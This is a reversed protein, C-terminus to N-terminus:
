RPWLHDFLLGLIDAVQVSMGCTIRLDLERVRSVVFLQAMHHLEAQLLPHLIVAAVGLLRDRLDRSPETNWKPSYIPVEADRGDDVLTHPGLM